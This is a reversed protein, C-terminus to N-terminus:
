EHVVALVAVLLLVIIGLAVNIHSFLVLRRQIRMLELSPPQGPAPAEATLKRFWVLSNQATIVIMLLVVAIKLALVLGFTTAWFGEGAGGARFTNYVGTVLLAAISGWAFYRFRQMGMMRVFQPPVGKGGVAPSLVINMFILGGVWTVAGVLHLWRAAVDLATM